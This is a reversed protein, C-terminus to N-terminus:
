PVLVRVRQLIVMNQEPHAYLYFGSAIVLLVLVCILYLNSKSNNM